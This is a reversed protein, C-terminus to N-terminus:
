RSKQNSLGGRVGNNYRSHPERVPRGNRMAPATNRKAPQQIAHFSARLRQVSDSPMTAAASRANKTVNSTGEATMASAGSRTISNGWRAATYRAARRRGNAAPNTAPTAISTFGFPTKTSAAHTNHDQRSHSGKAAPNAAAFPAPRM